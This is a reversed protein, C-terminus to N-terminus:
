CVTLGHNSPLDAEGDGHAIVRGLAELEGAAPEIIEAPPGGGREDIAVPLVQQVKEDEVRVSRAISRRRPLAHAPEAGPAPPRASQAEQQDAVDGTRLQFRQSPPHGRLM